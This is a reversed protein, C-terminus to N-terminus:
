ICAKTELAWHMGLSAYGGVAGFMMPKWIHTIKYDHAAWIKQNQKYDATKRGAPTDLEATWDAPKHELSDFRWENERVCM